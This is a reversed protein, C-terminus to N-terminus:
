PVFTVDPFSPSPGDLVHGDRHRLWRDFFAAVFTEETHVARTLDINGVAGTVFSDPLGLQRAIQPIL